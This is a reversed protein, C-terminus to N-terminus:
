FLFVSTGFWNFLKSLSVGDLLIDGSKVNRHIVPVELGHLFALARAVGLAM